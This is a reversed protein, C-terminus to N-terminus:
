VYTMYDGWKTEILVVDDMFWHEYTRISVIVFLECLQECSSGFKNYKEKVNTAHRM